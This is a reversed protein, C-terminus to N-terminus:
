SPLLIHWFKKKTSITKSREPRENRPLRSPPHFSVLSFPTPSFNQIKSTTNYSYWLAQRAQSAAKALQSECQGDDREVLGHGIIPLLLSINLTHLFFHTELFPNGIISHPNALHFSHNKTCHDLRLRTKELERPNIKAASSVWDLNVSRRTM